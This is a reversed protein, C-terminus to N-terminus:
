EAEAGKGDSRPRGIASHFSSLGPQPLAGFEARLRAVAQEARARVDPGAPDLGNGGYTVWWLLEGTAPRRRAEIVARSTGGVVLHWRGLRTHTVREMALEPIMGRQRLPVVIRAPAAGVSAAGTLILQGAAAAWGVRAIQEWGLRAWGDAGAGFCDARHYLARDTAVVAYQGGSDRDAALVREGREFELKAEIAADVGRDCTLNQWTAKFRPRLWSTFPVAAAGAARPRTGASVTM